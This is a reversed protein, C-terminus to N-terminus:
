VMSDLQMITFTPDASQISKSWEKEFRDRKLERVKDFAVSSESSCGQASENTEGESM